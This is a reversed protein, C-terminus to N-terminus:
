WLACSTALCGFGYGRSPVVRTNPLIL